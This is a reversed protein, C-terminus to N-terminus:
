VNGLFFISHIQTRTRKEFKLTWVCEPKKKCGFRPREKM